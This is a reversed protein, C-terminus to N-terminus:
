KCGCAGGFGNISYLVCSGGNPCSGSCRTCGTITGTICRCLDNQALVIGDQTSNAVPSPCPEIEGVDSITVSEKESAAFNEAAVPNIFIIIVTFATALFSVLTGM